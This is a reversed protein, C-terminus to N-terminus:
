DQVVSHPILFLAFLLPLLLFELPIDMTSYIYFHQPCAVQFGGLGDARTHGISLTQNALISGATMNVFSQYHFEIINSAEFLKIQFTAESILQSLESHVMVIILFRISFNSHRLCQFGHFYSGEQLLLELHRM